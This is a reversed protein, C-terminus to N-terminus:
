SAGRVGEPMMFPADDVTVPRLYKVAVFFMAGQKSYRYTHGGVGHVSWQTDPTFRASVQLTDPNIDIDTIIGTQGPRLCERYCYWGSGSPISPFERNIAARGDESIPLDRLVLDRWARLRRLANRANIMDFASVSDFADFVADVDDRTGSM